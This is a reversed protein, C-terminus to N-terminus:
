YDIALNFGFARTSPPTFSEFGEAAANTGVMLDPDLNKAARHIFFLNRGVLSFRISSVPLGGLMSQPLTYGLTMERLRTNTASEVFVEGVPANRGGMNRWFTEADIAINNPSGDELVATEHEFFNQGFILGGDRGELTEETVGDAYLIANTLSAITGGQRHDILVSASFNKYSISANIGGMWDPNFNAVPVNLGSSILPVGNSGVVVRGQDDRQFGRSYVMGYPQGEEIRFERLFDQAITLSPREDSIAVVMNRNRSFNFDLDWSFSQTRIPTTSLMVEVGKNEVDGGNTYYSSAGSGVPLAVTFLQNKTNSKYFTADLGLRDGFFRVDVGVETSVTEEPLLNENPLVTSLQLFGNNGGAIFNATRQLMFPAASNGVKAWSARVRAFSLVDPLAPILDSVIASLGVSPYFYSRNDAPLTSSWDNRGTLDLYIADNWNLQGFAYLSYVDFPSGISASSVVLQTNSLAFFNPVTLATGTNASLSTNRRQKVSGGVNADFSLGGILNDSYSLLFDGNWEFADSKSVAYQGNNAVIYTDNYLKTESSGAEGDYSGRVMLSLADTFRYRASGLVMVRNSTNENLNRYMAWYPNAGGNSGPNWYHQRRLGQETFYEFQKIDSTPINRPLRYIHRLPNTFNEGTALQNDLSQRIYSLKGDLELNQIPESTARISVNHRELDNNPVIGTATTFSYSFVTQVNQGGVSATVNTASNYGTRFADAVNNPQPLFAYQAGAMEPSPSWHDVMQGEMKPGWSFESGANYEGASGQGYVNQYNTLLIPESIMLNTSVSASVRGAAAKKTTVVIAGNQAASGYLAAANPGKLVSIDVIDNPNLNSIGGRVPVGDVVYLPESSGSISRNGRLIVRTAGGVGTGAQTVSLGAVKGALANTVNLERAEALRDTDVSQTGYTLSREEREVGLATVIVDQLSIASEALRINLQVTEGAQVEVGRILKSAYGIFSAQVDYTGAVVNGISYSGTGDTATGLTTGLIVVNAGPIPDGSLSDTVM